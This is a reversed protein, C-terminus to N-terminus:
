SFSLFRTADRLLSGQCFANNNISSNIKIMQRLLRMEKDPELAGATGEPSCGLCFLVQPCTSGLQQNEHHRFAASALLCRCTPRAPPCPSLSTRGGSGKARETNTVQPQTPEYPHSKEATMLSNCCFSSLKHVLPPPPSLVIGLHSPCMEGATQAPRAAQSQWFYDNFKM